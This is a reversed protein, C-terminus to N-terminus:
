VGAITQMVTKEEIEGASLEAIKVRDRLVVMRSCCRLSEDLESSIFIIAIQRAALELILKQIEAKTGVDIGRTPEDLILLEPETLLWRALIVKQQNGGSLNKIRQERGATKINLRAIYKDALEEQKRRSIYKKWGLKAQLALIINERVSLDAIIGETKRNEPCFGMGQKIAASPANLTIKKGEVLVEGSDPQDIGYIVRAMETRGSGLLGVFGLVEGRYISLDFPTVSGQKGLQKATLYVKATNDKLVAEPKHMKEKFEDFEKGIMKGILQVRPLDATAYTGVLEGNRLVTIRDSVAYVQDMFHTVFVIGMGEQRLRRMVDFLQEVEKADLSSTPEDLVLVKASIDLARAIAVMQQIAVSYRELPQTVDIHLHLRSLLVDSRQNITQWDIHGFRKPERGIFINEAVSLNTCLNVEQYVTSIGLQQAHHPSQPSITEGDLMIEGADMTEVGTLAKILTSKGAGNEGMLCHIEGARLTFDVNALARVGPFYKTIGKMTLVTQNETM